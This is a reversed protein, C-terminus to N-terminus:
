GEALAESVSECTTSGTVSNSVIANVSVGCINAAVSVPVQVNLDQAAVNVLGNQRARNNGDGGGREANAFAESECDVPGTQPTAAIINAAVGCVNAAIGIPLQINVDQLAVNVLGDQAARNPQASAAPAAMVLGVSAAAAVLMSSTRKMPHKGEPVATPPHVSGFSGDGTPVRSVGTVAFFLVVRLGCEQRERPLDAEAADSSATPFRGCVAEAPGQPFTAAPGDIGAGAHARSVM